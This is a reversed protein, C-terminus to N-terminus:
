NSRRIITHILGSRGGAGLGFSQPQSSVKNVVNLQGDVEISGLLGSIRFIVCMQGAMKQNDASMTKWETVTIEVRMGDIDVTYTGGVSLTGSEDISGTVPGPLDDGFDTTGSVVDRTQTVVLTLGFLEGTPFGFCGGEWDGEDRCATVMWDGEWRGQYDPLVRLKRTGRMGQYDAYVTAWGSSLGRVVGTTDVSAVTPADSNWTVNTSVFESTGNDYNVVARYSESSNITILDTNPTLSLSVPIRSVGGGGGNGDGGCGFLAATCALLVSASLRKM